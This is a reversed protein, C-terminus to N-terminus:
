ERVGTEKSPPSSRGPLRRRSAVAVLLVVAAGALLPVRDGLAVLAAGLPITLALPGFMATNGTAAVRGLRHEPTGTQIATVAAVLAWPLGAGALVSGAVMMPWWPLSWAVCAAAFVVAGLGAVRAAPMRALLRGVLLGAVISGAGQASSLFGLHTAPLRLGDVLRSLVAANTLGSVAIAVTALLVPTRLPERALAVLGTRVGAWGLSVRESGDAARAEGVGDGGVGDGGVGDSSLGEGGLRLLAYLVGSALPLAACLLVVPVPGSWAYLAAGALPALLKMGEQASSRWGNVDGLLRAPLAAPLLATEGADVLVYGVGRVLLVVYILWADEPADVTLLSLLALGLSLEATILLARRPFRDVLAGLWPAALSPAYIGLAALAALGANGTLDLIWIGAALTMATGGFGSLVSILVFLAANWGTGRRAPARVAASNQRM